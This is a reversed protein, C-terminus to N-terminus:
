KVNKIFTEIILPLDIFNNKGTLYNDIRKDGYNQLKYEPLLESFHKIVFLDVIREKLQHPLNFKNIIPEEIGIHIIEHIITNEPNKYQKFNGNSFTQLIIVGTENNYSGGPGYLTLNIKYEQFVVFGWKQYCLLSDIVKNIQPLINRIINCGIEYDKIKHISDRLILLLSDKDTEKLNNNRAKKLLNNIFVHKPLSISYGNKDFFPIAQINQWIYETEDEPTPINIKIRETQGFVIINIFFLLIEFCFLKM